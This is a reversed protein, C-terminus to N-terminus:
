VCRSTYLLCPIDHEYLREAILVESKSRVKLGHSTTHIKKESMYTSQKYPQAQWDSKQFAMFLYEKPLNAIREPLKKM